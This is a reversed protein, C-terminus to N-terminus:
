TSEKRHLECLRLFPSPADFSRGCYLNLCTRRWTKAGAPTPAKGRMIPAPAHVNMSLLKVSVAEPNKGLWEGIEALTAGRERMKVADELDGPYWVGKKRGRLSEDYFRHASM